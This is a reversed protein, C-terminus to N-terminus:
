RKQFSVLTEVMTTEVPVEHIVIEATGAAGVSIPMKISNFYPYPASVCTNSVLVKSGEPAPSGDYKQITVKYTLPLGPKFYVPNNFAFKYKYFILMIETTASAFMATLKDTFEVEISIPVDYYENRLSLDNVMDVDFSTPIAAVEVTRTHLM